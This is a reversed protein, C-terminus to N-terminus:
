FPVSNLESLKMKEGEWKLLRTQGPTGHRYKDLKFVIKDSADHTIGGISISEMQYYAPRMLFMVVDADQEIQGSEKLDSLQPIKSDRKEVERSLQALAIICVNFEKAISKLAMSVDSVQEYRDKGKGKLLQLYDIFVIKVGYKNAYLSIKARISEINARALDSIYIPLKSLHHHKETLNEQEQFTLQNKSLRTHDIDTLVSEARQILQEWSMELSIFATPIKQAAFNLMWNIAVASKGQGPRAALIFLDTPVFSVINDVTPFGCQFGKKGTGTEDRLKSIQVIMESITLEKQSDNTISSVGTNHESLLDLAPQDDKSSKSATNICNTILQRKIHKDQLIGIYNEFGYIRSIGNTYNLLENISFPNLEKSVIEFVGIYEVQKGANYLKEMASYVIKNVSNYFMEAKLDQVALPMLEPQIFICGILNKEADQNNPLQLNM